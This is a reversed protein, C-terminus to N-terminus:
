GQVMLISSRVKLYGKHHYKQLLLCVIGLWSGLIRSPFTVEHHPVICSGLTIVVKGTKLMLTPTVAQSWLLLIMLM